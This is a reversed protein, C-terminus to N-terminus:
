EDGGWEELIEVVGYMGESRALDLATQGMVNRVGVDAGAELLVRVVDEEGMMLPTWGGPSGKNVDAGGEGLLLRVIDVHGGLSASYLATGGDASWEDLDVGVDLLVRVVDIHGSGAAEVLGNVWVSDEVWRGAETASWVAADVLVQVIEVYGNQCATFLPGDEDDMDERMEEVEWVMGVDAGAEILLKAVEPHNRKCAGFLLSPWGPDEAAVDLVGLGLLYALVDAHGRRSAAALVNGGARGEATVDAGSEVLKRVLGLCGSGCAHWLPTEGGSDGEELDGGRELVWDVVRESGMRAAVHFLSAYKDYYSWLEEWGSAGPLALAALLVSEWGALDEQGKLVNEGNMVSNMVVVRAVERWVSEEEEGRGEM